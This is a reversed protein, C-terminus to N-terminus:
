RKFYSEVLVRLKALILTQNCQSSGTEDISRDVANYLAVCYSLDVSEGEVHLFNGIVKKHGAPRCDRGQRNAVVVDVSSRRINRNKVTFVIGYLDDLRVLLWFHNQNVPAEHDHRPDARSGNAHERSSEHLLEPRPLFSEPFINPENHMLNGHGQCPDQGNGSHDYNPNVEAFPPCWRMRHKADDCCRKAEDLWQRREESWRWVVFSSRDEVEHVARHSLEGVNECTVLKESLNLKAMREVETWNVTIAINTAVDITCAPRGKHIFYTRIEYM